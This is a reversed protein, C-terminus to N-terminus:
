LGGFAAVREYHWDADGFAPRLWKARKLYLHADYEWTYGIGGHLQIVDIGLKPLAESAYAKARSVALPLDKHEQDVCWAAYYVLSQFSQTDVYAEALPHKVAQFTGIPRGFQIRQKAYDVTLRLAAEAAGVAEATVALAGVDLLHSIAAANGKPLVADRGIKVADLSVRGLRKTLDIGPLDKAALGKTGREIVALGTEKSKGRRFAVVILDAAAADGVFLKEGTLTLSKGAARGALRVGDPAPAGDEELLAVTGIASGDALAPLWAAQQRASGFRRIAHAALTTSVLPSPFLSRGTEELVVVLDVWGLGVGGHLEPITLGLWGLEAIRQWLDRSFGPGNGNETIKRVQELPCSEDLFKRV